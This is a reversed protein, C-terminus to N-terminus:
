PHPSVDEMTIHGDPPLEGAPAELAQLVKGIFRHVVDFEHDDTILDAFFQRVGRVHVPIADTLLQRGEDTLTCLLGRRDDEAKIREVLGRAELRDVCHTLRSRSIMVSEAITSMRVGDPPGEAIVVLAAYDAISLGHATALATDLRILLQTALRLQDRWLAQERSGPWPEGRATRMTVPIRPDPQVSGRLGADM